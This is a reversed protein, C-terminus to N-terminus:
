RKVKVRPFMRGSTPRPLYNLKPWTPGTSAREKYVYLYRNQSEQLSTYDTYSGGSDTMQNYKSNKNLYDIVQSQTMNPYIELLCAVVGCVQPSAMSTGQYKQLNGSGRADAIGGTHVSSIINVGPAYIDVRPGCNSFSAKYESVTSGVAGVCIGLTGNTPAMGRHYYIIYNLGFYNFIFHNNYDIGDPKDIKYSENGAAGVVIIGENIADLQDQELASYSAPMDAVSGNNIIGVSNLFASDLNSTYDQGRHNVKTISSISISYGYGWSNNIITPNRRGTLPNIPKSAHWARIYDYILLVDVNNADGGYPFFNYINAKRAWGQTNGATTGAVHMGHNNDGGSYSVPYIYNSPPSAHQLWNYQVVRSGGTGDSNVAMEPHDPNVYGDVIVVDVNNGDTSVSVTGTQTKTATLDSGWNSRQEGETCRLLAWNKFLNNNTGSKDWYNSTQTWAPKIIIGLDAPTLEVSLVRPDHRLLEAEEKTLYYHTSRSIPRRLAIDVERNPIYLNGGPTEMDEYFGDLDEFNKLTVVYEKLDSM